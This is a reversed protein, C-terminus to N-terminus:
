GFVMLRQIGKQNIIIRCKKYYEHSVEKGKFTTLKFIVNIHYVKSVPIHKIQRTVADWHLTDQVPDDAYRIFSQINFRIIDSIDKQRTHIEDIKKNYLTIKKKFLICEEPKGEEEIPSKNSAKRIDFVETPIDEQELFYMKEKSEGIVEEYFGDVIDIRQDPFYLGIARQSINRINDKIRDKLMYIVVTGIIAELGYVPFQSLFLFGLFLSIFMAFGAAVSYFIELSTSQPDKRKKELYLVGQVYKKMIGEIYSFDENDEGEKLLLRSELCERYNQEEEIIHVILDKTNEVLYEGLNKLIKTLWKEIQMSIYEDSYRFTERLEEPIQIMIFRESIREMRQRFRQIDELYERLLESLDHPRRLSKFNELFYSFQDRLAAKMISGLLRLERQIKKINKINSKGYEIQSITKTIVNLPSRINKGDLLGGVTMQPTKFRIRNNLDSFFQKKSYTDKNIQLSKPVFFYTDLLYQTKKSDTKELTYRYDIKSEFNYLDHREMSSEKWGKYKKSDLMNSISTM